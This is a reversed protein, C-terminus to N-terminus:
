LTKLLYYTDACILLYFLVILVRYVILIGRAYLSMQDNDDTQFIEASVAYRLSFKELFGPKRWSSNEQRFYHGHYAQHALIAVIWLLLAAGISVVWVTNGSLM